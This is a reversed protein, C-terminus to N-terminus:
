KKVTQIIKGIYSETRETLDYSGDSLCWNYVIGRAVIFFYDVIEDASLKDTIEGNQQGTKIIDSLLTQLYKGKAIFAKNNSNYLLKLADLGAILNLRSYYRFYLAINKTSSKSKLKNVVSIKYYRDARKFIETLIDYKSEFYHYFAGVSVGAKQSIEEITVNDFGSKELLEIATDLIIRRTNIAQIKRKTLKETKKGM